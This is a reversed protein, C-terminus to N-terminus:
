NVIRKYQVRKAGFNILIGLHLHAAKLYTLLQQQFLGNLESVAKLELIIKEDIVLDLRYSGIPKGKYEFRIVKQQTFPIDRLALEAMLAQEYINESFGPGLQNHVEFVAEM